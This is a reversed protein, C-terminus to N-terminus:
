PPSTFLAGLVEVGRTCTTFGCVVVDVTSVEDTFGVVNPVLVVKVAVTEGDDAVPDTCNKSPAVLKPVLLMIEPTAVIAIEEM